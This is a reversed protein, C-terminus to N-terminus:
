SDGLRRTMTRRTQSAQQDSLQEMRVITVAGERIELFLEVRAGLSIANPV